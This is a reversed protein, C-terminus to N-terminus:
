SIPIKYDPHKYRRRGKTKASFDIAEKPCCNICAMCQVCAKANRTPNNNQLTIAKMPCANACLGCSICHENVEFGISSTSLPLLSGIIYSNIFSHKEKKYNTTKVNIQAIIKNIENEANLLRKNEEEVPLNNEFLLYNGPMLLHFDGQVTLHISRLAANLREVTYDWTGACTLISYVYNGNYNEFVLKKIFKRVITPPSWGHVPYVFGITEEKHLTYHFDENRMADPISILRENRDTAIKKAVYLSNGTGSFYFVM